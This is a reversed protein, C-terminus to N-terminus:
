VDGTLHITLGFVEEFMDSKRSLGWRELSLDRASRAHILLRAPKLTMRLKPRSGAHSRDLADAVRLIAALQYVLLRDDPSLSVYERHQPRPAAKRHYRAIVSVLLVESSSLGPIHSNMVLYRSHKHHAENSIFLGSEHLIAAVELLVRARPPLGHFEQLKDFLALSNEAVCRAHNADYHFKEGLTRACSLIAPVFPDPEGRRERLIDDVLADRTNIMPVLLRDAETIDFMHELMIACPQLSAAETHSLQWRNAAEERSLDHLQEAVTDFDDRSLYAVTGHANSQGAGIGAIARVSAGLAVFSDSRTPVTIRAVWNIITSVFPDVIERIRGPSDGSRGLEEVMRLTGLRISEGSTLRGGELFAVQSSGTGINCLLVQHESLPLAEQLARKVALVMLRIEQMDELMELRIGSMNSVRNVFLDRNGAERVASTAVAKYHEVGYERLKAAFDALIEGALTINAGSIRGETFAERGLGIPQALEELREVSGDSKVQAIELRVSHAGVDIVGLPGSPTSQTSRAAM